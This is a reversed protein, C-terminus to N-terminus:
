ILRKRPIGKYWISYNYSAGDLVRVLGKLEGDGGDIAEDLDAFLAKLMNEDKETAAAQQIRIYEACDSDNVVCSDYASLSAWDSSKHLYIEMFLNSSLTNLFNFKIGYYSIISKYSLYPGNWGDLNDFNTALNVTNLNNANNQSLPTGLDLYYQESAKVTEVFFQRVQEVKAAKIASYLAAGSIVSLAGFIALAIRADLGFMAAKNLKCFM